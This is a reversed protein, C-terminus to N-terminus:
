RDFEKRGEKRTGEEEVTNTRSTPSGLSPLNLNVIVILVKFSEPRTGRRSAVLRSRSPIPRSRTFDSFRPKEELFRQGLMPIINYDRRITPSRLPRPRPPPRRRPRHEFVSCKLSGHKRFALSLEVAGKKRGQVRNRRRRM